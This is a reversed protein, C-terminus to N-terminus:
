KKCAPVQREFLAKRKAASLRAYKGGLASRWLRKAAACDGSEGLKAAASFLPDVPAPPPPPLSASAPPPAPPASASAEPSIAAAPAAAGGGGGGGCRPNQQTFTERETAAPLAVGRDHYAQFASACDGARAFCKVANFASFSLKTAANVSYDEEDRPKVTPALRKIDAYASACAAAYSKPDPALSMQAGRELTQYARLLADRPSLSSGRCSQAAQQDVFRDVVEPTAVDKPLTTQLVRRYQAKGADCQGALMVCWARYAATPARPDTSLNTANRDVKDRADLEALCGPGDGARYREIAADWHAKARDDQKISTEARAGGAAGAAVTSPPPPPAAAEAAAPSGETIPRLTLRIPVTCNKTERATEASCATLVGGKKEASDLSKAKGGAGVGWVTVGAEGQISKRSGLAFAGLNYGHVFHTAGKCAANRDLDSRYVADRTARRTGSVFYEMHFQEGAQARGGLTAAGLPLKAFLEGENAIDIKEVSGGTWEVPGYAGLEGRVSGNACGDLVQLECGEYHVVIVDSAARAEFSSMDTADWEVVFPRDHNKANCRNAGAFTRDMLGSQGSARTETTLPASSGCAGVFLVGPVLVLAIGLRGYRM